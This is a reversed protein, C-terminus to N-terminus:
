SRQDRQGAEHHKMGPTVARAPQWSPNKLPGRLRLNRALLLSLTSATVATNWSRTRFADRPRARWDEPATPQSVLLVSIM